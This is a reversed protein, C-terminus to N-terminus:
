KGLPQFENPIVVHIHIEPQRDLNPNSLLKEIIPIDNPDKENLANQPTTGWRVPYIKVDYKDLRILARCIDRSHSGYGSRTAVPATVLCLPKNSV